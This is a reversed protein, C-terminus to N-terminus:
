ARFERSCWEGLVPITQCTRTSVQDSGSAIAENRLHLKDLYEASRAHIVLKNLSDRGELPEGAARRQPSESRREPPSLESALTPLGTAGM